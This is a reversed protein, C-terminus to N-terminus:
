SRRLKGLVRRLMRTAGNGGPAAHHRDYERDLLRPLSVDEFGAVGPEGVEIPRRAAAPPPERLLERFGDEIAFGGHAGHTRM